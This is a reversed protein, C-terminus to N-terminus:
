KEIEAYNSKSDPFRIENGIEHNKTSIKNRDVIQKLIFPIESPYSYTDTQFISKIVSETVNSDDEVRIRGWPEANKTSNFLTNVASRASFRVDLPCLYVWYDFTNIGVSQFICSVGGFQDRSLTHNRSDYNVPRIHRFFYPSNPTIEIDRAQSNLQHMKNYLLTEFHVLGDLSEEIDPFGPNIFETIHPENPEGTFNLIHTDNTKEDIVSIFKNDSIFDLALLAGGEKPMILPEDINLLLAHIKKPITSLLKQFM